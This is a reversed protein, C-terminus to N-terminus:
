AGTEETSAPKMVRVDDVYIVGVGGPTTADRRGVGITIKKVGTVTVGADTLESLPIKWETWEDATAVAADSHVVVGTRGGSDEIAVYLPDPGNGPLGRVYLVLTDVGNVTWDQPIAWTRDAESYYPTETNDYYLPMAQYGGHVDGTEVLLGNYHPSDVSWIDHGVSAGTGNGPHGPAPQSFGVGDVWVEFVRYGVENTYTEFDDVVIFDATTFSWVAGKWPSEADLTNAEDIRWYYTKNWQLPGPNYTTADLAQQARYIGADAPTANAVAEADEGFYVDHRAASEGANWRLLPTQPIDVGTNPPYPATARVSLQLWGTPIIQRPISESQWSLQAVAGGGDEYWEMRVGYYQGAVLDVRAYDDRTGHNTWNDILLRGDLWLRVGDDSTAILTFTETFPAELNATWRASVQDSIGAVVEGSGWPHDIADEIQSLVPDGALDKGRFYQAKAGGGPGLTAFTWVDGEHVVDGAAHEDIRWYYTTDAALAGPDFIRPIQNGMAAAAEGAEVAAKDTGFYVDHSTANIGAAWALDTEPDVHRAGDWPSPAYATEPATAFTWVDGEHITTFDGEVEDVRWYYITDPALGGTPWYIPLPQRGAYELADPSMGLYVDHVAANLGAGWEMLWFTVNEAGDAPTPRYAKGTIPVATLTTNGPNRENYDLELYGAGDYATIRGADIHGQVTARLDGELVLTGETIDMLGTDTMSLGDGGVNFTGGHLYLQGARGSGTPIILEGATVTGGTMIWTGEGDGWGLEFENAVTITGGSMRFTGHSGAGDGWWIWETIELSGGTMTMEPEGAVECALGLARAEIGDQILPGNPPAAAPVDVYVEDTGGPVQNGQWNAPNDWLNDGGAGTWEIRAAQCASCLLLVCMIPLIRTRCM